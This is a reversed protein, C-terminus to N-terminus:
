AVYELDFETQRIRRPFATPDYDTIRGINLAVYKKDGIENGKFSEAYFLLAFRIPILASSTFSAACSRRELISSPSDTISSPACSTHTTSSTILVVSESKAKSFKGAAAM